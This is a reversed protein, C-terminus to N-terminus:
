EWGLESENFKKDKPPKGAKRIIDAIKKSEEDSEEDEKEIDYEVNGDLGDIEAEVVPGPKTGGEM